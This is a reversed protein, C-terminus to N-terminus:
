GKVTTFGHEQMWINSTSGILLVGDADHIIKKKM